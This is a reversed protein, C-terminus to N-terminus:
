DIELNFYAALVLVVRFSCATLIAAYILLIM